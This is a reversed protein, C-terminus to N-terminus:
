KDKGRVKQREERKRDIRGEEMRDRGWREIEGAESGKFLQMYERPIKQFRRVDSVVNVEGIRRAKERSGELQRV